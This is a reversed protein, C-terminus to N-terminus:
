EMPKNVKKYYRYDSLDNYYSNTNYGALLALLIPFAIKSGLRWEYIDWSWNLFCLLLFLLGGTIITAIIAAARSPKPNYSRRESM